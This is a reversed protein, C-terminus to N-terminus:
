VYRLWGAAAKLNQLIQACLLVLIKLQYVLKVRLAYYMNPIIMVLHCLQLASESLTFVSTHTSCQQGCAATLTPQHSSSKVIFEGQYCFSIM